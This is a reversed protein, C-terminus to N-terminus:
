RLYHVNRFSNKFILISLDHGQGAFIYTLAKNTCKIMFSKGVLYQPVGSVPACYLCLCFLLVSPLADSVLDEIVGM